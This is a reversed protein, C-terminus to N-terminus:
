SILQAAEQAKQDQGETAAAGQTAVAEGSSLSLSPSRGMLRGRPEPEM